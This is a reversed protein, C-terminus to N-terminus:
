SVAPPHFIDEESLRHVFVQAVTVVATSVADAPVLSNPFDPNAVFAGCCNSLCVVPCPAEAAQTHCHTTEVLATALLFLSFFLPLIRRM